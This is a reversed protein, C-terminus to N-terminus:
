RSETDSPLRYEHRDPKQPPGRASILSRPPTFSSNSSFREGRSTSKSDSRNGPRIMNMVEVQTASVVGLHPVIGLQMPKRNHGLVGIKSFPTHQLAIWRLDDPNPKAVTGRLLHLLQQAGYMLHNAAEKLFIFLSTQQKPTSLTPLEWEHGFHSPMFLAGLITPSGGGTKRSAPPSANAM